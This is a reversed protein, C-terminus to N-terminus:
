PVICTIWKCILSLNPRCLCVVCWVCVHCWCTKTDCSRKPQLLWSSLSSINPECSILWNIEWVCYRQTNLDLEGRDCKDLPDTNESAQFTRLSCGPPPFLRSLGSPAVLVLVTRLSCSPVLCGPGPCDLDATQNLTSRNIPQQTKDTLLWLYKSRNNSYVCIPSALRIIYRVCKVGTLQTYISVRCPTRWTSWDVPPEIHRHCCTHLCKITLSIQTIILSSLYSRVAGEFM